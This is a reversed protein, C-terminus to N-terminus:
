SQDSRASMMLISTKRLIDDKESPGIPGLATLYPSALPSDPLLNFYLSCNPLDSKRHLSVATEVEGGPLAAKSEVM